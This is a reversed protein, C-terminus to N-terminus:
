EVVFSVTAPESTFLDTTTVTWKGPEENYAIPLQVQAAGDEVIVSRSLWPADGGGPGKARLKLARLGASGPIRVDVELMGGRQAPGGAARLVPARLERESLVLLTAWWPRVGTSFEGTPGSRRGTRMEYVHKKQPLAVTVPVPTDLGDFPLPAVPPHVDPWTDRDPGYLAAVEVGEGTRWRMVEINRHPRGSEDLVRLPWEVGAAAFLAKVFESAEGSEDHLATNPFSWMPFNLLIARGKSVENVICIPTDGARGLARGGALQVAPNVVMELAEVAFARGGITAAIRGPTAMAEVNGTHRVGFLDDLVGDERPKCRAGYLGPRVDAIVTGGAAAFDRIVRQEEPGISECQSLIMVKYASLDFEGRVIQRDTVYDFQLGCSRIARHWAKHCRKHVDAEPPNWGGDEDRGKALGYSPGAQLKIAQFSPYSHLMVIGDHLMRTRKHVNLLTGLGDFVIRASDTMRRYSPTLGMQQDLLNDIRWKGVTNAGRLFCHWFNTMGIFNGHRYGRPAVCRIVENPMSGDRWSYPMWYGMHKVITDIDQDLDEFTGEVGCLAGPDQRRVAATYRGIYNAFNWFQFARRDYWRPYSKNQKNWATSGPPPGVSSQENNAYTKIRGTRDPERIWSVATVDIVPEIAEFTAFSTGWSANLAAIDGGYQDNLYGQYVNWCSPHLCSGRTAQEDGMDYVLVGGARFGAQKRVYEELRKSLDPEANWCGDALLTGDPKCQPVQPGTDPPRYTGSAVLPTFNLGVRSMYWWPVGGTEMRSTVGSAALLYEAIDLKGHAYLKGWVIYHWQEHRAHPIKYPISYARVIQDEETTLTAKIALFNPMASTTPLSFRVSQGPTPFDRQVLARGYRDIAQVRLTRQENDIVKLAVTGDIPKGPVGWDRVLTVDAVQEETTIVFQRTAWAEVGRDSEAIVDFRYSGAPLSPIKFTWHSDPAGRKEAAHFPRAASSPDRFRTRLRLAGSDSAGRSTVRITQKSLQERGITEAPMSVSLQLPPERGAAWMIARGQREYHEDRLLDVGLISQERTPHYLDFGVPQTYVVVRGKGLALCDGTIGSLFVPSKELLTAGAPPGDDPKSLFFLGAGGRVSAMIAARAEDPIQGLSAASLVYCHYPEELLRALRMEGTEGGHVGETTTLAADGSLDFRQMLEIADRLPLANVGSGMQLVFLARVRGRAYPKAWRTHPTEFQPELSNIQEIAALPADALCVSTGAALLVLAFVKVTARQAAHM